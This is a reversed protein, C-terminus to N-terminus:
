AAKKKKAKSSQYFAVGSLIAVIGLGVVVTKTTPTFGGDSFGAKNLDNSGNSGNEGSAGSAGNAGNSGNAASTSTNEKKKFLKDWPIVAIIKTIANIFAAWNTGGSSDAQPEPISDSGSAIASSGASAAGEGIGLAGLGSIPKGFGKRIANHLASVPGSLRSYISEIKRMSDKAKKWTDLDLNNKVAQSETMLAYGMKASSKNVNQAFFLLIQYRIPAKIIDTDTDGFQRLYDKIKTPLLASGVKNNVTSVQDKAWNDVQQVKDKVVNIVNKPKLISLNIKGLGNLEQIEMKHDHKQTFTKEENFTDLVCDLVFPRQKNSPVIVYVHQWDGDYKTMRFSHNIGQNQLLASLFTSYCDCDGKKDAILRIPTRIQEIGETDTEYAIHDFLWNWNNRLTEELTNGTLAQALKAVQHKNKTAIKDMLRLTDYVTGSHKFKSITSNQLESFDFFKRWKGLPKVTRYPNAVLGLM